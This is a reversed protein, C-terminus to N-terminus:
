QGYALSDRLHAVVDFANHFMRTERQATHGSGCRRLVHVKVGPWALETAEVFWQLRGWNVEWDVIVRGLPGPSLTAHLNKAEPVALCARVLKEATNLVAPLPPTEDAEPPTRKLEKLQLTLWEPVDALKPPAVKNLLLRTRAQALDTVSDLGEWIVAIHRLADAPKLDDFAARISDRLDLLCDNVTAQTTFIM